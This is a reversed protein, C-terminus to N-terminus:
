RIEMDDDIGAWLDGANGEEALKRCLWAYDSDHESLRFESVLRGQEDWHLSRVLINRRFYAYRKKGGDPYWERYPGDKGNHRWHSEEVLQGSALWARSRGHMRGQDYTTEGLLTGNPLREQAVGTFPIGDLEAHHFVEDYELQDIDVVQM